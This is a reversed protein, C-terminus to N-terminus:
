EILGLRMAQRVAEARESVGLKEYMHHLHTKVTSPALHLGSAIQPATQGAAVLQLIQQERDSLSPREGSARVRLERILGPQVAAAIVDEGRAAAAVADCIERTDCDKSLYGAAGREVAQYVVRPDPEASLLLLRVGSTAPGLLAEVDGAVVAPDVVAVDVELRELEVLVQEGGVAAVLEFEPWSRIARELADLYLPYPDAVLVRTRKGRRPPGGGASAESSSM